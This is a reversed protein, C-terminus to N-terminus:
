NGNLWHKLIHLETTLFLNMKDGYGKFISVLTHGVLAM